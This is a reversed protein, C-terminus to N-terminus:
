LLSAFQESVREFFATFNLFRVRSFSATFFGELAKKMPELALTTIMM